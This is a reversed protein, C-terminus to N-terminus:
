RTQALEVDRERALEALLGTDFYSGSAQAAGYVGYRVNFEDVARSSGLVTNLEKGEGPGMVRIAEALPLVRTGELLPAYEEPPLKVRSALIRVAEDRTAPANLFDVVDYWTKVVKAWEARRSALSERSVYLLDYILGPVDASSYLSKSGPVTKLAQGSNPQWAAIADVAGAALAQPLENTPMNVLQVDAETMGSAQLAKLLLLHDVFGVEVGVKKGKLQAVSEIGPRAIVMDNGNSYDNVLVAVSPKASKAGLVMADGNTMSVADLQGAAFADMSPGYDMWVLEADVGNKEFLGKEKAIEWMVWGPWDSYGIKLPEAKTECGGAVLLIAALGLLARVRRGGGRGHGLMTTEGRHSQRRARRPHAPMGQRAALLAYLFQRM